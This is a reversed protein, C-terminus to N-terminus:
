FGRDDTEGKGGRVLCVGGRIKYEDYTMPECLHPEADPLAQGCLNCGINMDKKRGM